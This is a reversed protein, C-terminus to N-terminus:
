DDKKGLLQITNAVIKTKSRKVGGEEEWSDTQIKGEVYLQKGKSVYSEVVGALKGWVEVSHWETREQKEGDKMWSETTALSFKAVKSNATEKVEPDTGVRGILMAKNIGSM